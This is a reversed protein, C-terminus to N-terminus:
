KKPPSSIKAGGLKELKLIEIHNKDKYVYIACLKTISSCTLISFDEAKNVKYIQLSKTDLKQLTTEAKEKGQWAYFLSVIAFLVFFFASNFIHDSFIPPIKKVQTINLTQTEFMRYKRFSVLEKYTQYSIMKITLTLLSSIFHWLCGLITPLSVIFFISISSLLFYKSFAMVIYDTTELPFLSLNLGLENLYVAYSVRGLFYLTGTFVTIYLAADQFIKKSM